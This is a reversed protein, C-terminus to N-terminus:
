AAGRDKAETAAKAEAAAKIRLAEYDTNRMSNFQLAGIGALGAIGTLWTALWAVPLEKGTIASIIAAIGWIVGTGIWLWIAAWGQFATTNIRDLFAWDVEPKKM